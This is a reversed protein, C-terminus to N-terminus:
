LSPGVVSLAYGAPDLYHRAAERVQDATVASIAAAYGRLYDLGLGYTEMNMISGAVGENSELNLPLRGIFNAKVDALEADTVGDAILREVQALISAIAREVNVPNVGASIQWPSPGQGGGLRSGTHYALGQDERVSKGLRGMMGFVGLINNAINAAQFDPAYRSPGPWGMVVDSQSKGPLTHDERRIADLKPADPLLRRTAYTKGWDGLAERVRGVAEAQTVAGVIVIIMGAPSFYTKHFGHIQDLTINPVCALDDTGGKSYPHNAPYCLRRFTEGAIARTDQQRIKLGTIMEGRLREVQDVPFTPHRLANSLLELLVPLDEALSKGGFSSSHTGAGISLNAGISELTEHIQDFSDASTGRMLSSGVLSALGQETDSEDLGGARITGSILVAKSTFNERVLITIGNPLTERAIDDSGPLANRTTIPSTMM